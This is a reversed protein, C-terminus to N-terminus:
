QIWHVFLIVVDPKAEIVEELVAREFFLVTSGQVSLNYLETTPRRKRLSQELLHAYILGDTVNEGYGHGAGGM